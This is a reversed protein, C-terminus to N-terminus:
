RKLNRMDWLKVVKDSGCSALLHENTPHFEMGNVDGDHANRIVHLPKGGDGHTSSSGGNNNGRMVDWLCILGDDGCSGVMNPDKNHWDVDEVAATHYRFTSEPSL